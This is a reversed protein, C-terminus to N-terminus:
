EIMFGPLYRIKSEKTDPNYTIAIVDIRFREDPEQNNKLIEQAGHILKWYRKADIRTEAPQDLEKVARTKVEIIIYTGIATSPLRGVIRDIKKDYEFAIIDVEGVRTRVNRAVIRMGRKKLFLVAMDEGWNGLHRAQSSIAM